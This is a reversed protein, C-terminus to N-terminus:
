HIFGERKHTKAMERKHRYTGTHEIIYVYM